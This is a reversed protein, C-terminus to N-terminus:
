DVLSPLTAVVVGQVRFDRRLVIPKHKKTSSRPVLVVADRSRRLEKITAEDDILAVVLQGDEATGQQQVLVLADDQIGAENMSDGSARLLFYKQGPRALRTSVPVMAEINEIALLPVGCAASGVLAVEVTSEKDKADDPIKLLQLMRDSERRKLYGAAILREIIVVASRASSFGLEAAL